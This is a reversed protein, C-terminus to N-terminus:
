SEVEQKMGLVHNLADQLNLHRFVFGTDLLRRPTVRASSLLLAEGMEGLITKIVFAPMPLATPRHLTKGLIRTFEENTAPNPSAANVPGVLDESLLVHHIAGLLDDYSIWSMYQKGDGFRGGFGLRFPTLMPPLAGGAPTLVIGIRLNVVRVGAQSAANTAQEWERCVQALFDEGLPSQEDLIEDGRDGYGGIASACVLTQPPSDLQALAQCLRRTGLVRSDRIRQKKAETWRGSISEGALHVVADFGELGTLEKPDDSSSLLVAGGTLQDQRRVLRTVSHGGTELFASVGSGVLGTAGSLLVKKKAQDRFREHAKLDALTVSHRYAFMRTLENQILRGSFLNGLAGFPASYEIHDELICAGSGEPQIRHTHKWFSFPGVTQM